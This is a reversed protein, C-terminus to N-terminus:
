EAWAVGGRQFRLSKTERVWEKKYKIIPIRFLIKNRKDTDPNRYFIFLFHTLSSNETERGPGFTEMEHDPRVALRLFLFYSPNKMRKEKKDKYQGTYILSLLFKPDPWNVFLFLFSCSDMSERECIFPWGPWKRKIETTAQNSVMWHPSFGLPLLSIQSNLSIDYTTKIFNYLCCRGMGLNVRKATKNGKTQVPQERWKWECPWIFFFVFFMNATHTLTFSSCNALGISAYAHATYTVEKKIRETHCSM